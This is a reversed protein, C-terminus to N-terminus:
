YMTKIKFIMTFYGTYDTNVGMDIGSRIQMTLRSLSNLPPDFTRIKSDFDQGKVFQASGSQSPNYYVVAFSNDANPVNSILRNNLEEIALIFYHEYGELIYPDSFTLATMEVSTVNKFKEGPVTGEGGNLLISFELNSVSQSAMRSDVFLTHETM